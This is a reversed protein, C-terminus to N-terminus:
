SLGSVLREGVFRLEDATVATMAGDGAQMWARTRTAGTVLVRDAAERVLRRLTPWAGAFSRQISGDADRDLLLRYIDWADGARKERGRSPSRDEIAHLKMAVLPAATALPATARVSRDTAAVLMLPEAAELAWVHAAVFLANKEPIGDLDTEELRGVHLIEVKTGKVIIRHEGSPDLEADPLALLAEVADPPTTEDVVADVDVTARHAQGLRATVAVGGVVAFRDLGARTLSDVAGILPVMAEGELVVHDAGSRM